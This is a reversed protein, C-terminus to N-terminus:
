SALRGQLRRKIEAHVGPSPHIVRVRYDEVAVRCLELGAEDIDTIESLDPDDIEMRTLHHMFDNHLGRNLGGSIRM